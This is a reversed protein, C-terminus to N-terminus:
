KLEQGASFIQFYFGRVPETYDEVPKASRVFQPLFFFHKVRKKKQLGGWV